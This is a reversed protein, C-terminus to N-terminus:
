CYVPMVLFVGSSPFWMAYEKAGSSTLLQSPEFKPTDIRLEHIMRVIYFSLLKPTLSLVDMNHFRQLAMERLKSMPLNCFTTCFLKRCGHDFYLLQFLLQLASKHAGCMEVLGPKSDVKGLLINHLQEDSIKEHYSFLADEFTKLTVGFDSESAM